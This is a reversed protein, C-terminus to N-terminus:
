NKRRQRSKVPKRLRSTLRYHCWVVRICELKLHGDFQLLDDFACDNFVFM